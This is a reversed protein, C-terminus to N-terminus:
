WQPLSCLLVDFSKSSQPFQPTTMPDVRDLGTSAVVPQSSHVSSSPALEENFPGEFIRVEAFDEAICM